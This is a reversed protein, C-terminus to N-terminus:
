QASFFEGRLERDIAAGLESAVDLLADIDPAETRFNVICARLVFRGGLVANSCYVRGDLHISTMLRENLMDLYAERRPGVPLDAPVYRFCCISLRAPSVLEFEDRERVRAELYRALAADHSIREGYARRGHALLSVWIKLAAFGRSFQPGLMSFDIGHGSREKDEHIYTPHVAFADALHQLDRVLVCGGSHPTYLWKHPDFAISDANEIGALLPRLDDALIAPGGYAADVHLWIGEARCVEAIAPLPDIAGTAVTGASAVVAFPTRGAARDAEIAARLANVDMRYDADVAIKRVASTGLGLMDAARDTVVHVETSAYLALGANAVGETRVDWGARRDRAAKLAVFNALAGGSVILGGATDPLGFQRAFWQTLHLEIETASPSLRWGGANMNVGAALFDAVAGPITGAGTIYAMFRPHGPFAANDMLVARLHAFLEDDPLPEEPVARTVAAAVQAVNASPAVPLDPLRALFEQWLGVAQDAFERARTPSWALDTIPAPAETTGASFADTSTM